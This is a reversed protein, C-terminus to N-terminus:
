MKQDLVANVKIEINKSINKEVLKPISINYDAILATFVSSTTIKGANITIVGPTTVKQTVGHITLDGSVSVKYTGDKSFVVKGIDAVSGKFTAKPFRASEMYNENFHEQMLSKKFNFSNILVSFQLTGTSVDLVCLAQNSSADINEMSTKSFFSINGNKTFQKQASVATSISLALLLPYFFRKM